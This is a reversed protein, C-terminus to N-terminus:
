IRSFTYRGWRRSDEVSELLYCHRSIRMLKRLVQIPTAIDSFIERMVPVVRYQGQGAQAFQKAEEYTPRYM